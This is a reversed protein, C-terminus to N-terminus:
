IYVTQGYLVGMYELSLVSVKLIWGLVLRNAYPSSSSFSSGRKTFFLFPPFLSGRPNRSPVM